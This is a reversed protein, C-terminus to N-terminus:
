GGLWAGVVPIPLGLARVFVGVSFVALGVALALASAWRFRRSAWASILVLLLLAVVLGATRVLVGFLVTSLVVLALQKWAFATIPVGPTVFARILVALGILALLAGLVTPFYAPGMRVASGMPYHRAIGVAAGGVAIFILGSWFDKPHRIM